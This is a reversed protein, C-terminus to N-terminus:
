EKGDGFVPAKWDAPLRGQPRVGYSVAPIPYDEPKLL